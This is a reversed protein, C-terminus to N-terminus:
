KPYVLIVVPLLSFAAIGEAPDSLHLGTSTGGDLNLASDIGMDSDVLFRSMQYLTFSGNIALVFLIRGQTDQAIITRRARQGDEEPFGPQGGPTVLMPFSQLGALLGESPDYPQQPLWRLSPGNASVAFMGGFDQYSSGSTQGNTVTAGTAIYEETFFGGNVVLLAGTEAQWQELSQPQGPHYGVDFAFFNPDVRLIYLSERFQNEQEPLNITRRELGPRLEQWGSDPNVATQTPAPLPDPIFLTPTPPFDAPPTPLSELNCALLLLIIFPIKWSPSPFRNM